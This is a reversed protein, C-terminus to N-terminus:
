DVFFVVKAGQWPPERRGSESRNQPYRGWFANVASGKHMYVVQETEKGRPYVKPGNLASPLSM